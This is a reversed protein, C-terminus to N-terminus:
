RTFAPWMRARYLSRFVQLCAYSSIGTDLRLPDLADGNRKHRDACFATVRQQLADYAAVEAQFRERGIADITADLRANAAASLLVDATNHQKWSKDLAPPVSRHDRSTSKTENVTLHLVDVMEVNLVHMLAVHSESQRETVGIFDYDALLHGVVTQAAEAGTHACPCDGVRLSLTSSYCAVWTYALQDLEETTRRTTNTHRQIAELVSLTGRHGAMADACLSRCPTGVKLLADMARVDVPDPCRLPPLWCRTYAYCSQENPALTELFRQLNPVTDMKPALPDKREVEFYRYISLVRQVPERVFTFLFNHRGHLVPSIRAAIGHQSRTACRSTYQEAYEPLTHGMVSVSATLGYQAGLLKTLVSNTTSSCYQKRVKTDEGRPTAWPRPGRRAGPSWQARPSFLAAARVWM